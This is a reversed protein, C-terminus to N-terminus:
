VFMGFRLKFNIVMCFPNRNRTPHGDKKERGYQENSQNHNKEEKKPLNRFVNIRYNKQERVGRTIVRQTQVTKKKSPKIGVTTKSKM